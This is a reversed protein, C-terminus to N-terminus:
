ERKITLTGTADSISANSANSLTLTVTEDNEEINDTLIPVTFTKSTDDPSFTLTGSTETYDSVRLRQGM